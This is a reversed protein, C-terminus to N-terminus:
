IENKLIRNIERSVDLPLYGHIMKIVKDYTEKQIVIVSANLTKNERDWNRHDFSLQKYYDDEDHITINEAIDRALQARVLREALEVYEGENINLQEIQWNSLKHKIVYRM